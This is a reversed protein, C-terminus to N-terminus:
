SLTAEGAPTPQDGVPGKCQVPPSAVGLCVGRAM